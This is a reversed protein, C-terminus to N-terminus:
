VEVIEIVQTKCNKIAYQVEPANINDQSIVQAQRGNMVFNNPAFMACRWCGVCWPHIVLKQAPIATDNVITENTNWVKTTNTTNTTENM